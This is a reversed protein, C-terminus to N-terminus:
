GASGKARAEWAKPPLQQLRAVPLLRSAPPAESCASCREWSGEHFTSKAIESHWPLVQKRDSPRSAQRADPADTGHLPGVTSVGLHPPGCRTVPARPRLDCQGTIRKQLRDM